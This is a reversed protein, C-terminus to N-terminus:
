GKRAIAGFFKQMANLEPPTVASQRSMRWHDIFSQRALQAPHRPEAAATTASAFGMSVAEDATLWTEEDMLRRLREGPISVRELYANISAETLKELDGAAKRLTKSDGSTYMWANHIFLLATAPMIREHGAMFIVSAISAAFGDVVTRCKPFRKLQNYIALGEGVEGGYSNIYVTLPQQVDLEGLEQAIVYSTVDNELMPMSTIDGFIYLENGDAAHSLSYYKNM